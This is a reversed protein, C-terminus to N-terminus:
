RFKHPCVKGFVTVDLPRDNNIRYTVPLHLKIQSITRRSTGMILGLTRNANCRVTYGSVQVSKGESSIIIEM